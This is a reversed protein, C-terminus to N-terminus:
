GLYTAAATKKANRCYTGQMSLGVRLGVLSGVSAGAQVLAEYSQTEAGIVQPCLIPMEGSVGQDVYTTTGDLNYAFREQFLGVGKSILMFDYGAADTCNYHIPDSRAGTQCYSPMYYPDFIQVNIGNRAMHVATIFREGRDRLLANGDQSHNRIPDSMALYRPGEKRPGVGSPVSCTISHVIKTATADCYRVLNEM